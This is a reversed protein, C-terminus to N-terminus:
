RRSRRTALPRNAELARARTRLLENEMSLEGIHRKAADLEHSLPDDRRDKLGAELAALAKERWEELRYMEVGLERSLEDLSEGRLMRLVVERKRGASWRQGPALVGGGDSGGTARRAGQTRSPSGGKSRSKRSM